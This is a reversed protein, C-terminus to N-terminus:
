RDNRILWIAILIVGLGAVQNLGILENDLFGWFLAVIPILYTVSSAFVATTSKILRNFLVLSLATGIFALIAIAVSSKGLQVKSVEFNFDTFLLLIISTIALFLLPLATVLMPRYDALKHKIINVNIGYCLTALIVLISYKNFSVGDSSALLFAGFLGLLVGILKNRSFPVKLFLVGILLALLPTLGNLAGALSSSIHVQAISFLLAPIGSGIFGSLLFYHWDKKADRLDQKRIFPLLVLGALLMRFSAVQLSSFVKLGEKM